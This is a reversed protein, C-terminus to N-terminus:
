CYTGIPSTLFNALLGKFGLVHHAIKDILQSQNKEGTLVDTKQQLETDDLTGIWVWLAMEGM